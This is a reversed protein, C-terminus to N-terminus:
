RPAAAETARHVDDHVSDQALIWPAPRLTRDVAALNDTPDILPQYPGGNLSCLWNATIIPEEIGQARLQERKYHAYQVLIDPFTQLKRVQRPRLDQTPDIVWRRGTAPDTAHITLRSDKKRLKMHWSFRHGEETWSVRGPYLWHRLPIALQLLVYVHVAVLLASATVPSRVPATLPPPPSAAKGIRRWVQRPWDPPFFITIAGTMLYSFVGIRLFVENFAHFVVAALFGM